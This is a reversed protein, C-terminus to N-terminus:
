GRKKYGSCKMVEEFISSVKVVLVCCNKCNLWRKVDLSQYECTDCKHTRVKQM